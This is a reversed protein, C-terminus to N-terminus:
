GGAVNSQAWLDLEVGPRMVYTGVLTHSGAIKSEVDARQNANSIVLPQPEDLVNTSENQLFGWFAAGQHGRLYWPLPWYDPSVISIGTADGTGLEAGLADVEDLLEFVQRTSHVFVYPYRDPDDTDYNVFNLDVAQYASWGVAVVVALPALLRVPGRMTALEWIAYGALLALPLLM